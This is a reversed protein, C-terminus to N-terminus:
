GTKVQGTRFKGTGVQGTRFQEESVNPGKCWKSMGYIGGLCGLSVEPSCESVM